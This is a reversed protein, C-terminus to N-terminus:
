TFFVVVKAAGPYKSSPFFDEIIKSNKLDTLLNTIAKDLVGTGKGHIILCSIEDSNAWMYISNLTLQEAESINKGHLDLTPLNGSMDKIEAATRRIKNEGIQNNPATFKEPFKRM